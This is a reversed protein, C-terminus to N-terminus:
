DTVLRVESAPEAHVEGKVLVKPILEQIGSTNVQRSGGFLDNITRQKKKDTPEEGKQKKKKPNCAHHQL